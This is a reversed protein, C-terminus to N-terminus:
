QSCILVELLQGPLGILSSLYLGTMCLLKAPFPLWHEVPELMREWSWPLLLMFRLSRLLDLVPKATLSLLLVCPLDVGSSSGSSRSESDPQATEVGSPMNSSTNQGMRGSAHRERNAPRPVDRKQVCSDEFDKIIRYCIWHSLINNIRLSVKIFKGSTFKM